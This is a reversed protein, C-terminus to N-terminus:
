PARHGKGNGEDEGKDESDDKSKGEDKEGKGQDGDAKEQDGNDDGRSDDGNEEATTAPTEPLDPTNKKLAHDCFKPVRSPGGAAGELARRRSADLSKGDRLDRCASTVAASASPWGGPTTARDGGAPDGTDGKGAPERSAGPTSATAGDGPAATGTGGRHTGDSSPPVLPREPTVAASVSSAPAPAGDEFPTPLVGTGAAVAVGGVMGVTLTAALGFRLPRSWRPRRPVARHGEARVLGVDAPRAAPDSAGLAARQGAREARVQRFAALAAEEGPLEGSTLPTPPSIAGLAEALRRAPEGADAGVTDLPEGRLLREATDRDLWRYQEDAM